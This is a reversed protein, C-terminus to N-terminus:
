SKNQSKIKKIKKKLYEIYIDENKEAIKEFKSEINECEVLKNLISNLEIEVKM